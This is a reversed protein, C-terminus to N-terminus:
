LLDNEIIEKSFYTYDSKIHDLYGMKEYFSHTGTVRRHNASILEITVCDNNKAYKEAALLLQKGIGSGRHNQDIVLADIHCCRGPLRFHEYCGFAILGLIIGDKEAVFIQHLQQNFADIRKYMQHITTKFKAGMQALLDVLQPADDLIAKRIKM